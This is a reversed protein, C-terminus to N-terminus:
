IVGVLLKIAYATFGIGVAGNVPRIAKAYLRAAQRTSFVTAYVTHGVAAVTACGLGFAIMSGISASIAPFITLLAVWTTLAKPNSALVLLAQAFAARPTAGDIRAVAEAPRLARRLYRYAFYLLVAAGFATLGVRAEPVAAFLAGAGLLAAAAWLTVGLGCAAACGYGAARGSGLSVGITNLVNPGPTLVNVAFFGLPAILDTYSM